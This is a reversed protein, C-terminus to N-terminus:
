KQVRGIGTAERDLAHTLPCESAPVATEFGAQSDRRRTKHQWTSIDADTHDSTWLLVVLHPTDSHSWSAEFIFLSQSLPVTAEHHFSFCKQVSRSTENM